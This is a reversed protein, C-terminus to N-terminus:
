EAQWKRKKVHIRRKNIAITENTTARIQEPIALMSSQLNKKEKVPKYLLKFMCYVVVANSSLTNAKTLDSAIQQEPIGMLKYLGLIMMYFSQLYKMEVVSLSDVTKPVEKITTINGILKGAATSYIGSLRGAEDEDSILKSFMSFAYNWMADESEESLNKEYLNAIDRSPIGRFTRELMLKKAIDPVMIDKTDSFLDSENSKNYKKILMKASNKIFKKVNCRIGEDNYSFIFLIFGLGPLGVAPMKTLSRVPFNKISLLRNLTEEPYIPINGGRKGMNEYRVPEPLLGAKQWNYIERKTFNTMKVLESLPHEM